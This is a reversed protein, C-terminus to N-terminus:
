ASDFHWWVVFFKEIGTQTRKYVLPSTKESLQKKILEEAESFSYWNKIEAFPLLWEKKNPIAFMANKDESAFQEAFIYHGEICDQYNQSLKEKQFDKPLFLSAKLCLQQEMEMINKIGLTTLKAITEPAYLLPFQKKQLKNLKFELTDKRNPGIWKAEMNGALSDDYLYFKGALEIHITKETETDFVIYDLEGLTETDGQVQINAALLKYRKSNKLCFEFCAEAQKGLVIYDPFDFNFANEIEESFIFSEFHFNESAM